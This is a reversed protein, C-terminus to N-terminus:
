IFAVKVYPILSLPIKMGLLAIMIYLLDYLQQQQESDNPTTETNFAPLLQCQPKELTQQSSM